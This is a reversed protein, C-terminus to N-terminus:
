NLINSNKKVRIEKVHEQTNVTFIRGVKSCTVKKRRNKIKIRAFKIFAYNIIDKKQQQQLIYMIKSKNLNKLHERFIRSSTIDFIEKRTNQIVNFKRRRTEINNDRDQQLNNINVYKVNNKPIKENIENRHFNFNKKNRM